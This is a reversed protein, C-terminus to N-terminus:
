KKLLRQIKALLDSSDYPKRICADAGAALCQKEVDDMGAATTVLIPIHQTAPNKRLRRCVEFGDLDPMIVDTLILDPKETVAMKLGAGAELSSIVNFGHAELRLSVMRVQDPEDEIFLIKKKGNM